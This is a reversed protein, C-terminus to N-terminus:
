RTLHQQQVKLGARVVHINSGRPCQASVIPPGFGGWCMYRLEVGDVAAPRVFMPAVGVHQIQPQLKSSQAEPHLLPIDSIM